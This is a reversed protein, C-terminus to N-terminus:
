KDLNEKIEKMMNFITKKYSLSTKWSDYLARTKLNIYLQSLEKKTYKSFGNEINKLLESQNKM